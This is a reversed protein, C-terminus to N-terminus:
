SDEPAHLSKYAHKSNISRYTMNKNTTQKHATINNAKFDGFYHSYPTNIQWKGFCSSEWFTNNNQQLGM